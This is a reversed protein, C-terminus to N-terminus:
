RQPVSVKWLERAGLPRAAGLFLARYALSASYVSSTDWKWLLRDPVDSLQVNRLLEWLRFYDTIANASLAGTIDCVWANGPIADAVVRQRRRRKVNQLLALAVDRVAQGNPIWRDTWFAMSRGDGVISETAAHFAAAM